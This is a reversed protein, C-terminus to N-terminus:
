FKTVAKEVKIGADKLEQLTPWSEVFKVSELSELELLCEICGKSLFADQFTIHKLGSASKLQSFHSSTVAGWVLLRELNPLKEIGRLSASASLHVSLDTLQNLNEIRQADFRNCNISLTQLSKLKGIEDLEAASWEENGCELHKLDLAQLHSLGRASVHCDRILLEDLNKLKAIHRFENAEIVLGSSIAPDFHLRLTKASQFRELGDLSKTQAEKLGEHLWLSYAYEAADWAFTDSETELFKRVPVDIFNKFKSKEPFTKTNQGPAIQNIQVMWHKALKECAKSDQSLKSIRKGYYGATAAALATVLLLTRLKFRMM